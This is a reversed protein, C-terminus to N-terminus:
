SLKVILLNEISAPGPTLTRGRARVDDKGMVGNAWGQVQPSLGIQRVSMVQTSLPYRTLDVDVVPHGEERYDALLRQIRDKNMLVTYVM